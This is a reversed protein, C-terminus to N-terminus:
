RGYIHTSRKTYMARIGGSAKELANGPDPEDVPTRRRASSQRNRSVHDQELTFGFPVDHSLSVSFHDFDHRTVLIGGISDIVAQQKAAGVAADLKDQIETADEVRFDAIIHRPKV